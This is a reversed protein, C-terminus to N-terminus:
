NVKFSICSIDREYKVMKVTSGVIRESGRMQEFTYIRGRGSPHGTSSVRQLYTALQHHRRAVVAVQEAHGARNSGIFGEKCDPLEGGKRDEDSGCDLSIPAAAEKGIGNGALAGNVPLGDPSCSLIRRRNDQSRRSLQQGTQSLLLRWSEKREEEDHKREPRRSWKTIFLNLDKETTLDSHQTCGHAPQLSLTRLVLETSKLMRHAALEEEQRNDFPALL